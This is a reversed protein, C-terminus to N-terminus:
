ESVSTLKKGVSASTPAVLEDPLMLVAPTPTGDASRLWQISAGETSAAALLERERAASDRVIFAM